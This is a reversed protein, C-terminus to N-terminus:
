AIEECPPCNMEHYNNFDPKVYITDRPTTGCDCADKMGVSVGYRGEELNIFNGYGRSDVWVGKPGRRPPKWVCVNYKPPYGSACKVRVSLTCDKRTALEDDADDCEGDADNRQLTRAASGEFVSGSERRYVSIENRPTALTSLGLDFEEANPRLTRQVARNGIARQLHLLIDM